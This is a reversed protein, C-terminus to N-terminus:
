TAEKTKNFGFQQLFYLKEDDNKSVQIAMLLSSGHKLNITM